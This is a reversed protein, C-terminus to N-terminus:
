QNRELVTQSGQEGLTASPKLPMKSMHSWKKFYMLLCVVTAGAGIMYGACNHLRCGGDM